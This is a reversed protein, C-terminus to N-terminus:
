PKSATKTSPKSLPSADAHDDQDLPTGEIQQYLLARAKIWDRRVTRDTVQLVEAIQSDTMGGFFRYEVVKALRPGIDALQDLARHLTLLSVAQEEVKLSDMGLGLDLAELPEPEQGSGRKQTIKARAHDVLVHRMATAAVAFFHSRDSISGDHKVLRLYAENVLATTGLTGGIPLQRRQSRARDRLHHYLIEVLDQLSSPDGAQWKSLLGTIEAARPHAEADDM